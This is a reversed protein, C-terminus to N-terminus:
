SRALSTATIASPKFGIVLGFIFDSRVVARARARAAISPASALTSILRSDTLSVPNTVSLRLFAARNCAQRCLDHVKRAVRTARENPRERKPNVYLLPMLRM